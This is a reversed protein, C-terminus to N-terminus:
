QRYALCPLHNRSAQADPCGNCSQSAKRGGAEKRLVRLWYHGTAEMIFQVGDPGVHLTESLQGIFSEADSRNNRVSRRFAQNGDQDLVCAEHKRKDIDIGCYYM